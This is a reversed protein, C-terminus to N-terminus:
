PRRVMVVHSMRANRRAGRAENLSHRPKEIVSVLSMSAIKGSRCVEISETCSFFTRWPCMEVSCMQGARRSSAALRATSSAVSSRSGPCGAARRASSSRIAPRRGGSARAAPAFCSVWPPIRCQPRSFGASISANRRSIRLGEASPRGPHQIRERTAARDGEFRHPEAALHDRRVEIRHRPEDQAASQVVRPQQSPLCPRQRCEGHPIAGEGRREQLRPAHLLRLVQPLLQRLQTVHVLLRRGLAEAAHQFPRRRHLRRIERPMQTSPPPARARRRAAPAPPASGSTRRTRAPLASPSAGPWVVPASASGAGAAAVARARHPLASRPRRGSRPTRSARGPARRWDASPRLAPPRRDRPAFPGSRRSGHPSEMVSSASARCSPLSAHGASSSAAHRRSPCRTRPRASRTRLFPSRPAFARVRCAARRRCSSRSRPSRGRNRRLRWSAPDARPRGHRVAPRECSPRRRRRVVPCPTGGASRGRSRPRRPRGHLARRRTRPPATRGAPRDSAWPRTPLM